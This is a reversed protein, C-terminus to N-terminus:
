RGLVHEQSIFTVLTEENPQLSSAFYDIYRRKAVLPLIKTMFACFKRHKDKHIEQFSPEFPNKRFHCVHNDLGKSHSSGKVSNLIM